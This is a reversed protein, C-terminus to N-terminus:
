RLGQDPAQGSSCGARLMESSDNNTMRMFLRWINAPKVAPTGNSPWDSVGALGVL